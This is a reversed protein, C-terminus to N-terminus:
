PIRRDIRDVAEAMRKVSAAMLILAETLRRHADSNELDAAAQNENLSKLDRLGDKLPELATVLGDTVNSPGDDGKVYPMVVQLVLIIAIVAVGSQGLMGKGILKDM